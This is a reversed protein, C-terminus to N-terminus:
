RLKKLARDMGALISSPDSEGYFYKYQDRTETLSDDLTGDASLFYTRPIYEGDPSYKKSLDANKDKDLRIMVFSQAKKVLDPNSFLKSYNACHPCWTTYFILCVPKHDKKAAALGDDYPMWKINADNWDEAGAFAARPLLVAAALAATLSVVIMVMLSQRMWKRM